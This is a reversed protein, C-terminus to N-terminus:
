AQFIYKDKAEPDLLRWLLMQKRLAKIFNKNSRVWASKEGSIRYMMLAIELYGPNEESHCCHLQLKQKIGFDFPALWVSTRILHCARMSSINGAETEPTGM